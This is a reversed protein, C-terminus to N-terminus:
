EREEDKITSITTINGTRLDKSFGKLLLKEKHFLQIKTNQKEWPKDFTRENTVKVKWFKPTEGLIEGDADYCCSSMCINVKDGIKM